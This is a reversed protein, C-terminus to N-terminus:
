EHAGRSVQVEAPTAIHGMWVAYAPPLRPIFLITQQTRTDFAFFCGELDNM